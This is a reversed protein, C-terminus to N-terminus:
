QEVRFARREGSRERARSSERAEGAVRAEPAWVASKAAMSTLTISAFSYIPKKQVGHSEAVIVATRDEFRNVFAIAYSRNPLTLSLPRTSSKATSTYSRNRGIIISQVFSSGKDFRSPIIFLSTIATSAIGLPVISSVHRDLSPPRQSSERPEVTLPLNDPAFPTNPESTSRIM